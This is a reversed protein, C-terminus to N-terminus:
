NWVSKVKVNNENETKGDKVDFRIENLRHQIENLEQDCNHLLHNFDNVANMNKNELHGIKKIKLDKFTENFTTELSKDIDKIKDLKVKHDSFYLFNNQVAYEVVIDRCSSNLPTSSDIIKKISIISIM